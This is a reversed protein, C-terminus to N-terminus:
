SIIIWNSGDSIITVSENVSAFSYSALGEITQTGFPMVTVANTLDVAKIIFVKGDRGIATPLTITIASISADVLTCYDDDRITYDLSQTEINLQLGQTEGLANNNINNLAYKAVLYNRLNDRVNLSPVDSYVCLEAIKGDFDGGEQLDFIQLNSTCDIDIDVISSASVAQRIGNIYIRTQGGPTWAMELIQWEHIATNMSLSTSAGAKEEYIYSRRQGFRWARQTNQSKGIIYDTGTNTVYFLGICYLGRTNDFVNFGAGASMYQSASNEVTALGNIDNLNFVPQIGPTAQAFTRSNVDQSVWQSVFGGAQTVGQEPDLWIELNPVDDPYQNIFTNKSNFIKGESQVKYLVLWGESAIVRESTDDDIPVGNPNLFVRNHGINIVTRKAGDPLPAISPPLTLTIDGGSTDVHLQGFMWNDTVGYDSNIEIIKENFAGDMDIEGYKYRGSAGIWRTALGIGTDLISTNNVILSSTNSFRYLTETEDCYCSTKINANIITNMEAITSVRHNRIDRQNFM